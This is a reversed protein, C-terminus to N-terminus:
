QRMAGVGLVMKVRLPKMKLLCIKLLLRIMLHFHVLTGEAFDATACFGTRQNGLTRALTRDFVDTCGRDFDVVGSGFNSSAFHKQKRRMAIAQRPRLLIWGIIWTSKVMKVKVLSRIVM